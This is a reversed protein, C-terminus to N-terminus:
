LSQWISSCWGSRGEIGDTRPISCLLSFRVVISLGTGKWMAAQLDCPMWLGSGNQRSRVEEVGGM